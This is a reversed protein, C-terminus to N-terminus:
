VPMEGIQAAYRTLAQGGTLGPVATLAAMLADGRAAFLGNWRADLTLSGFSLRNLILNRVDEALRGAHVGEGYIDFFERPELLKLALDAIVSPVRAYPLFSQLADLAKRNEWSALASTLSVELCLARDPPYAEARLRELASVLFNFADATKLKGVGLADAAVGLRIAATADTDALWRGARRVLADEGDELALRVLVAAGLRTNPCNELMYLLRADGGHGACLRGLEAADGSGPGYLAERAACLARYSLQKGKAPRKSPILPRTDPPAQTFTLPTIRATLAAARLLADPAGTEACLALLEALRGFVPTDEAAGRLIGALRSLRESNLASGSGAVTIGYLGDEIESLARLAAATERM